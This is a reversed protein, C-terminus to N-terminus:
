TATPKPAKPAPRPAAPDRSMWGKEAMCRRFLAVGRTKRADEDDIARTGEFAAGHCQSMDHRLRIQLEPPQLGLSPNSWIENRQATAPPSLLLLLVLARNM